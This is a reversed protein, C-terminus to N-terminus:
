VHSETPLASRIEVIQSADAFGPRSVGIRYSGFALRRVVLVGSADTDLRQRFENAQSVIEVPGPLAAGTADTVTVRLEGTNAQGFQGAALLLALVWPIM